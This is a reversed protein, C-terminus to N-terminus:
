TIVVELLRAALLRAALPACRARAVSTSFQFLLARTTHLHTLSCAAAATYCPSLVRIRLVFTCMKQPLDVQCSGGNQQATSATPACMVRVRRSSSCCCRRRRRRRRRSSANRSAVCLVITLRLRPSFKRILREDGTMMARGFASRRCRAFRTAAAVVVLRTTNMMMAVRRCSRLLRRGSKIEIQVDVLPLM